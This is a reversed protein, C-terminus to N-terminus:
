TDRLVTTSHIYPNSHDIGMSFWIILIKNMKVKLKFNIKSKIIGLHLIPSFYGTYLFQNHQLTIRVFYQFFDNVCKTWTKM